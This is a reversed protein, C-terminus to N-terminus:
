TLIDGVKLGLENGNVEEGNEWQARTILIPESCIPPDAYTDVLIGNHTIAVIKGPQMGDGREDFSERCDWIYLKKGQYHTFAGPYPHSLARVWNYIQTSGFTWDIEGDKPTRKPWYTAQSEDQLIHVGMCSQMNILVNDVLGNALAEDTRKGLTSSTDEYYIPVIEQWAIPGADPKDTAWFWTAGTEPLNKIIAWPIPARGRGIPLLTPHAALFGLKPINLIENPILQSIGIIIGLDPNLEKIWPIVHWIPFGGYFGLNFKYKLALDYFERHSVENKYAHDPTIVGCIEYNPNNQQLVTELVLHGVDRGAIFLIKM